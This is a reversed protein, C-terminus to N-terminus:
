LWLRLMKPCILPNGTVGGHGFWVAMQEGLKCTVLLGQVAAHGLTALALKPPLSPLVTKGSAFFLQGLASGGKILAPFDISEKIQMM